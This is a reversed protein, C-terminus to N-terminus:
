EIPIEEGKVRPWEIELLGPSILRVKITEKKVSPDLRIRLLYSTETQTIVQESSNIGIGFSGIHIGVKRKSM